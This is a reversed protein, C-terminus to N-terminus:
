LREAALKIIQKFQEASIKVKEEKQFRSSEFAKELLRFATPDQKRAAELVAHALGEKNNEGLRALYQEFTLEEPM